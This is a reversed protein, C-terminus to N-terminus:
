LTSSFRTPTPTYIMRKGKGRERKRRKEDKIGAGEGHIERVGVQDRGDRRLLVLRATLLKVSCAIQFDRKM